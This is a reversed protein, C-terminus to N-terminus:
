VLRYLVHDLNHRINTPHSRHWRGATRQQKPTLLDVDIANQVAGNLEARWAEQMM